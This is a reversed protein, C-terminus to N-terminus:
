KREPVAEIKEIAIAHSGGREFLKGQATVRRGAYEMLRPNQGTAPMSETIPWYITGDAALIVLPSGAKACELACKGGNMPKKVNRVFACASDLVYGEVTGNRQEAHAPALMLIGAVAVIVIFAPRGRLRM